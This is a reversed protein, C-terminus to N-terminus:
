SLTVGILNAIYALTDEENAFVREESVGQANIATVIYGGNDVQRGEFSIKSQPNQAPM